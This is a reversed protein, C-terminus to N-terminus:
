KGAILVMAKYAPDPRSLDPLAGDAAQLVFGRLADIPRSAHIAAYIATFVTSVSLLKVVDWHVDLDLPQYTSWPTQHARIASLM